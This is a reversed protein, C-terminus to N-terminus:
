RWRERVLLAELYDELRGLLGVAEGRKGDLTRALEDVFLRLTETEAPFRAAAISEVEALCAAPSM